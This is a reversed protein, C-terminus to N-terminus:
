RSNLHQNSYPYKQRVEPPFDADIRLRKRLDKTLQKRYLDGLSTNSLSDLFGNDAPATRGGSRSEAAELARQLGQVLSDNTTLNVSSSSSPPHSSSAGAETDLDSARKGSYARSFPAQAVILDPDGELGARGGYALSQVKARNRMRRLLAEQSKVDAEIRMQWHTRQEPPVHQLWNAHGSSDSALLESSQYQRYSSLLVQSLLGSVMPLMMGLEGLGGGMGSAVKANIAAKLLEDVSTLGNKFTPLLMRTWHGLLDRGWLRCQDSFEGNEGTRPMYEIVLDVFKRCRPLVQSRSLTKLEAEMNQGGIYNSQLGNLSTQNLLSDVLSGTLNQALENRKEISDSGQFFTHVFLSRLPPHLRDLVDWNGTALALMDPLQLRSMVMALIAEMATTPGSESEATDLGTSGGVDTTKDEATESTDARGASANGLMSMLPGLASLMGQMQSMQQQQQPSGKQDTSGASAAQMLAALPNASVQGVSNASPSSTRLSGSRRVDGVPSSTGTNIPNRQMTNMFAAFPNTGVNSTSSVQPIPASSSVFSSSSSSSRSSAAVPTDRTNAITSTINTTTTTTMDSLNTVPPAVSPTNPSAHHFSSTNPRTQPKVLTPAHSSSSTQSTRTAPQPQPRTQSGVVANQPTAGLSLITELRGLQTLLSGARATVGGHQRVKRELEQRISPNSESDQQKMAQGLTELSPLLQRLMSATQLMAEGAAEVSNDLPETNLPPVPAPATAAPVSLASLQRSVVNLNNRLVNPGPVIVHRQQVIVRPPQGPRGQTGARQEPNQPLHQEAQHGQTLSFNRQSDAQSHAHHTVPQTASHNESLKPKVILHVTDGNKIAYDELTKDDKLLKGRFILRLDEEAHKHDVEIRQKVAKISTNRELHLTFAEGKLVLFKVEM